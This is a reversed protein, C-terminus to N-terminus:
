DIQANQKQILLPKFLIEADQDPPEGQVPLLIHFTSGPCTDEDRGASEVWIRGGHAEIIGKAIPLGLGPGGGKFKLKGSSHVSIDEVPQLKTFIKVQNQPDIGIGNDKVLIEYFGDIKRGQIWIQGKDPTYKIANSVVNAFAQYLRDGDYFNMLNDGTFRLNELTIERLNASATYDFEIKALIKYLWTPQFNLSLLQNDILSVDIMDSIIERLRRSGSDMGELLQFVHDDFVQKQELIERLMSSYGELLTLPTKLEHAAISIFDSKSKDLQELAAQENNVQVLTETLVHQYLHRTSFTSAPILDAMLQNAKATSNIEQATKFLCRFFLDLEDILDHVQELDYKEMWGDLMPRM